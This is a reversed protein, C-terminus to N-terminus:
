RWARGPASIGSARPCSARAGRLGDPSGATPEHAPTLKGHRRALHEEESRVRRRRRAQREVLLRAVDFRLEPGRLVAVRDDELGAPGDAGVIHQLREVLIVRGHHMEAAVTHALRADREVVSVAPRLEDGRVRQPVQEGRQPAIDADDHQVGAVGDILRPGDAFDDVAHNAHAVGHGVACGPRERGGEVPREAEPAAHLVGEVLADGRDRQITV